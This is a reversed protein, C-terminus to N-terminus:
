RIKEKLKFSIFILQKMRLKLMLYILKRAGKINSIKMRKVYEDKYFYKYFKKYERFQEKLGNKNRMCNSFSTTYMSFRNSLYLYEYKDYIQQKKLLSILTDHFYMNRNFNDVFYKTLTSGEYRFYNYLHEKVVSISNAYYYVQMLFIMDEAIAINSDFKLNNTELLEKKILTRWVLGKVLTKGEKPAVMNPILEDKITEENLIDDYQELDNIQTVDEDNIENYQCMAVDSNNKIIQNYLKQLFEKEIYDDADLFIVYKGNAKELGKNRTDSVGTNEKNIITVNDLSDYKSIINATNDKSGDNIVILEYDKHSQELISDIMRSIYKEGNYVPIIISISKEM